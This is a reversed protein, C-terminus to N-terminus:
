RGPAPHTHREAINNIVSIFRQFLAETEADSLDRRSTEFTYGNAVLKLRPDHTLMQILRNSVVFRIRSPGTRKAELLNHAFTL